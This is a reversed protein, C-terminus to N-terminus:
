VKALNHVVTDWESPGLASFVFFATAFDCTAESMHAAIDDRTLDCQFACLDADSYAENAQIHALHTVHTRSAPSSPM